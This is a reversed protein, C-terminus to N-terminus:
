SRAAALDRHVDLAQHVDAGIAAQAVPLVKRRAALAGAGVGPGALARLLRGAGDLPEGRRRLARGRLRGTSSAGGDRSPRRTVHSSRHTASAAAVGVGDAAGLGFFFRSRFTPMLPIAWTWDVNLLVITVIVSM